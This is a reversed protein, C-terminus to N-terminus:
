GWMAVFVMAALMLRNVPALGHSTRASVYGM